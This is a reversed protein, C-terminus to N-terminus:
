WPPSKTEQSLHSFYILDLPEDHRLNQIHQALFENTVAKSVKKFYKFFKKKLFLWLYERVQDLGIELTFNPPELIVIYLHFNLFIKSNPMALLIKLANKAYLDM